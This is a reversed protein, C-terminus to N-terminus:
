KSQYTARLGDQLMELRKMYLSEDILRTKKNEAAKESYNMKMAESFISDKFGTALYEAEDEILLKELTLENIQALISNYYEDSVLRQEYLSVVSRLKNKLAEISTICFRAAKLLQKMQVPVPSDSMNYFELLETNSTEPEETSKRRVFSYILVAASLAGFVAYPLM